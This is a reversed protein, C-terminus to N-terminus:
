IIKILKDDLLKFFCEACNVTDYYADHANDMEKNFVFKYLECLKPLKYKTKYYPKYYPNNIKVIDITSKMTCFRPKEYINKIFNIDIQKDKLLYLEACLINVDFDINHGIILESKDFISIIENLKNIINIGDNLAKMQSIGHINDNEIIFGEPIIIYNIKQTLVWKNNNLTYQILCIQIVRSNSYASSITYPYYKGFSPTSPLGSTELDLFVIKNYM